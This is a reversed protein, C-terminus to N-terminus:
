SEDLGAAKRIAAEATDAEVRGGYGLAWWRTVPPCIELDFSGVYEVHGYAWLTLADRERRLREIEDAAERFLIADPGTAFDINSYLRTVLDDDPM